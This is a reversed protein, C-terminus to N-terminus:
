IIQYYEFFIKLFNYELRKQAEEIWEERFESLLAMELTAEDLLIKEGYKKLIKKIYRKSRANPLEVSFILECNNNEELINVLM